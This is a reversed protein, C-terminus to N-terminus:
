GCGAADGLGGARAGADREGGRALGRLSLRHLALGDARGAGRDALFTEALTIVFEASAKKLESCGVVLVSKHHQNIDLRYRRPMPPAELLAASADVDGRFRKIGVLGVLSDTEPLTEGSAVANVAADVVSSVKEGHRRHLDFLLKAAAQRPGEVYELVRHAEGYTQFFESANMQAFQRATNVYGLALERERADVRAGLVPDVAYAEIPDEDGLEAALIAVRRDLCQSCRGCHPHQKTTQRVSACSRTHRIFREGGRAAIREVVETKTLGFFPNRVQWTREFVRSFLAEFGQMVKPHTSRTARAGVLQTSIPLNVSLVGNEFFCIRHLGLADAVAAGVAAFLFSRSRHSSERGTREVLNLLLQFDSIKQQDFQKKLDRVLNKQALELKTSARHTVLAIRNGQALLEELAGGLSDLGGSFLLVTDPSATDQLGLGPLPEPFPPRNRHLFEFTWEDDSLFSLTNALVEVIEPRSWIDLRRVPVVLTLDRRWTAGLRAEDLEGRSIAADAVYVYGAIDILDRAM